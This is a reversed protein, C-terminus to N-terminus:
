APVAVGLFELFAANYENPYELAGAHGGDLVKLTAGPILKALKEANRVPVLVDDKAGVVLTPAKVNGLRDSADFALIADAQRLFGHDQQAYPNNVGNLIAREFRERDDLLGPSYVYPAMFRQWQERSLNSRRANIWSTLVARGYGDINAATALLILKEVRAPYKIAFEQAIYGGMSWGLIHAEPIELRDMLAALDDAMGVISYPKDPASTRGAGRNDFTIVRFHKSLAPVQLAWAQLDGGLGMVLILPDGSGAEEYYTMIDRIPANPMPRDKPRRIAPRRKCGAPSPYRRRPTRDATPAFHLSCVAFRQSRWGPAPTRVARALSRHLARCGGAGVWLRKSFM